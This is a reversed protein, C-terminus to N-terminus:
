YAIVHVRQKTLIRNIFCPHKGRNEKLFLIIFLCLRPLMLVFPIKQPLVGSTMTFVGDHREKSIFLNKRILVDFIGLIKDKM